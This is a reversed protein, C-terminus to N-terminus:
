IEQVLLYPKDRSTKAEELGVQPTYLSSQRGLQRRIVIDGLALAVQIAVNSYDQLSQTSM